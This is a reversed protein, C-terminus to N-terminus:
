ENTGGGGVEEMPLKRPRIFLILLLFAMFFLFRTCFEIPFYRSPMNPAADYEKLHLIMVGWYTFSAITSAVLMTIPIIRKKLVSKFYLFLASFLLTSLVNYIIAVYENFVFFDPVKVNQEAMDNLNNIYNLVFMIHLLTMVVFPVQSMRRKKSFAPLAFVGILILTVGSVMAPLFARFIATGPLGLEKLGFYEQQYIGTFPLLIQVLLIGLIFYGSIKERKNM